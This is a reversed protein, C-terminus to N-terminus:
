ACDARRLRRRAILRRIERLDIARQLAVTEDRDRRLRSAARGGLPAGRWCSGDVDFADTFPAFVASAAGAASGACSSGSSASASLAGGSACYSIEIDSSAWGSSSSLVAGSGDSRDRRRRRRRAVIEGELGRLRNKPLEDSPEGSLMSRQRGPSSGIITIGARAASGSMFTIADSGAIGVIRDLVTSLPSLTAGLALDIGVVLAGLRRGLPEAQEVLLRAGLRFFTEGFRDIEFRAAFRHAALDRHRLHHQVAGEGALIRVRHAAHDILVLVAMQGALEGEGAVVIGSTTLSGSM